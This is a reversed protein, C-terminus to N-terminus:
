RVEVISASKELRTAFEYLSSSLLNHHVEAVHLEDDTLDLVNM